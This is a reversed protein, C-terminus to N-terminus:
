KPQSIVVSVYLASGAPKYQREDGGGSLSVAWNNWNPAFYEQKKRGIEPNTLERPLIRLPVSCVNLAVETLVVM